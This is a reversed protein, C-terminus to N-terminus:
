AFGRGRGAWGVLGRSGVAEVGEVSRGEAAPVGWNPEPAQPFHPGIAALYTRQSQAHM